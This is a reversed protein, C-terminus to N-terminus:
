SIKVPVQLRFFMGRENDEYDPLDAIVECIYDGVITYNRMKAENLLRNAYDIEKDFRNCYICLYTSAPITTILENSEYDCGVFVFLETSVFNRALANEMKLITGANCFYVQPLGKEVLDNKLARLLEEYVELGHEYFNIDTKFSYVRRREIYELVIAGDPPSAEYREFSAIAREVAQKRLRLNELEDDIQLSKQRLLSIFLSTDRGKLHKTIDKLSMGLSKMYQIMDLRASQKISYYRYGTESDVMSPKLIGMRDYYRLTQESVKNLRAMQGITLRNM